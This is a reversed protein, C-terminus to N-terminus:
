QELRAKELGAEKKAQFAYLRDVVDVHSKETKNHKSSAKKLPSNVYM